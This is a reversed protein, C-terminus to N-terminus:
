CCRPLFCPTWNFACGCLTLYLHLHSSSILLSLPAGLSCCPGNHLLFSILFEGDFKLNHWYCTTNKDKLYDIFSEISNSIHMVEFTDINVACGGWVRVDDPTTTTEFDCMIKMSKIAM